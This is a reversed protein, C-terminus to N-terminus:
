EYSVTIIQGSVSIESQRMITIQLDKGKIVLHGNKVGLTIQDTTYGELSRYNEIKLSRSGTMEVKEVNGIVEEPLQFTHKMWYTFRSM